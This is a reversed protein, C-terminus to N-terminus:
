GTCQGHQVRIYKVRGDRDNGKTHRSYLKTFLLIPDREKREERRDDAYVSWNSDSNAVLVHKDLCTCATEVSILLFPRYYIYILLANLVICYIKFLPLKPVM